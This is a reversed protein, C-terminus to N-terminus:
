FAGDIFLMDDDVDSITDVARQAENSISVVKTSSQMTQVVRPQGQHDRKRSKSDLSIPGAKTL